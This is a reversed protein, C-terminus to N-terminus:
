LAFTDYYLPPHSFDLSCVSAYDNHTELLNVLDNTQVYLGTLLDELRPPEPYLFAEMSYFYCDNM